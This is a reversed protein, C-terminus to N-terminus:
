ERNIHNIFYALSSLRFYWQLVKPDDNENIIRFRAERYIKPSFQNLEPSLFAEKWAQHMKFTLKADPVTFGKKDRRYLVQKPVWQAAANRLLGKAFGNATKKRLSENLWAALRLDDAFPNRSELGHAMGNSDEWRLMQRLKQGFYDNHMKEEANLGALSWLYSQYGLMDPTLWPKKDSFFRETRKWSPAHIKLQNKYWGQVIEGFNIPLKRSALLLKVPMNPLARQFYDPYGGFIEDAGQGNFFVTIGESKALRALQYQALNNWAVPPLDAAAIVERLLGPGSYEINSQYWDARNYDAVKKQWMSEDEKGSSVISFLKLEADPGLIKRAAGIIIASDLGGSVAFGLPVDSMLRSEVSRLLEERLDPAPERLLINFKRTRITFQEANFDLRHPVQKIGDVMEQDPLIIGETLFHFVASTNLGTLRGLKRLSATDSSFAFVDSSNWYYLPKVGTADRYLELQKNESDYVALAHFGDLETMGPQEHATILNLATEADNGSQNNFGYKRDLERFNFTEGNYTIWYRGNESSMPQHGGAGPVIVSLRRHILAGSYIGTAESIHPLNINPHSSDGRYQESTGNVNFLVFGEDDPGRHRLSNSFKLCHGALLKGDAGNKYWIGAIGCM